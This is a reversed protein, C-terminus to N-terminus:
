NDIFELILYVEKITIIIKNNRYVVPNTLKLLRFYNYKKKKMVLQM